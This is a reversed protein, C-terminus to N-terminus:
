QPQSPTAHTLAVVSGLAVCVAAVIAVRIVFIHVRKQKAPAIAAGSVQSGSVGTGKVAPAAATGVPQQANNQQQNQGPQSNQSQPDSGNGSSQAIEPEPADPLTEDPETSKVVPNRSGNDAEANQAGGAPSSQDQEAPTLGRSPTTAAKATPAALMLILCSGILRERLCGTIRMKM